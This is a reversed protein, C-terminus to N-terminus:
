SKSPSPKIGGFPFRGRLKLRLTIRTGGDTSDECTVKTGLLRARRKLSAPQSGRLGIGNDSVRLTLTKRGAKLSTTVRTAGSHRLINTLCEKYFLYIYVRKRPKIASLYEEGEVSFVHEMDALLSAASLKMDEVLNECVGRAELKKTWNRITSGCRETFERSKELLEAREEDSEADRALDGLLGITHINAGLEDHLDAAFRERMQTAQRMRLMRDILITFAVSVALLAAVWTMIRLNRKQREYRRKLEEIILPRETELDHRRALQLMWERISLLNGYLNRGDTLAALTRRSHSAEPQPRGLSGVPKGVSVNVPGSFVEIEPSASVAPPTKWPASSESM